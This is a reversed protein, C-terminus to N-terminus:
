PARPGRKVGGKPRPPQADSWHQFVTEPYNLQDANPQTDLWALIADENELCRSLWASTSTKLRLGSRTLWKGFLRNFRGGDRRGAIGAAHHRGAEIAHGLNLWDVFTMQDRGGRALKDRAQWGLRIIEADAMFPDHAPKTM